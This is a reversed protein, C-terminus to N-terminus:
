VCVCVPASHTHVSLIVTVAPRQLLILLGNALPNAPNMKYRVLKKIELWKSGPHCPAARPLCPSHLHRKGWAQLLCLVLFCLNVVRLFFPGEPFPTM